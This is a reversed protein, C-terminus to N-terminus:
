DLLVLDPQLLPELSLGPASPGFGRPVALAVLAGTAADLVRLRESPADPFGAAVLRRGLARGHRLARLGEEGVTVAPLEPLLAGLPVLREGAQPGLEDWDLAQELGFAGSRTRRLATLHAGVGLAAGLDRALARVYTGSSCRVDLEVREGEVALAELAYVTVRCPRREVQVGRRALDYLREGGMRKASYLPPLQDIEGVLTHCARAVDAATVHVAVPEGLPEGQVDDTTTAFGLRLTARYAKEGGSLFRALRTARGVCVPLVGTAFPDLTGTHGVRRVGLARRVRDVVDHSTPGAPKDVVLVGDSRSV